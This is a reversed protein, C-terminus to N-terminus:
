IVRGSYIRPKIPARLEALAKSAEKRVWEQPHALLPEINNVAKKARLKRLAKVAYGAVEDDTLLEILVDISKSPDLNPLRLVMPARSSGHRKDRIMKVVENFRSRDAAVSIANGLAWKFGQEAVDGSGSPKWYEEVLARYADEGAYTVTLARAIGERVRFPYPYKLHVILVPIAQAYAQRTNVLDWVSKVSVGADNLAEVLPQEAKKFYEARDEFQKEREKKRRVFAPDQNLRRLLEEATIPTQVKRQNSM